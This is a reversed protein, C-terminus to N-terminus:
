IALRLDRSSKCYYFSILVKVNSVGKVANM